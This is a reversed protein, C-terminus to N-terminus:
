GESSKTVTTSPRGAPSIDSHDRFSQLHRRANENWASRPAPSPTFSVRNFRRAVSAASAWVAGRPRPWPSLLARLWNGKDRGPPTLPGRGPAPNPIERQSPVRTGLEFIGADREVSAATELVIAATRTSGAMDDRHHRRRARRRRRRRRHRAFAAEEPLVPRRGTMGTAGVSRERRFCGAGVGGCRPLTGCRSRSRRDRRTHSATHRCRCVPHPNLPPQRRSRGQERRRAGGCPRHLPGKSPM